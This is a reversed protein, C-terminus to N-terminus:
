QLLPVFGAKHFIQQGEKSLLLNVYALAAVEDITGDARFVVFLRRTLPYSDDRIATANVELGDESLPQVYEQSNERAVALPRITQQGLVPANGLFSIGGPTSAVQRITDTYDRTFKIRSSIQEMENGMVQRLLMSDKPNRAFPVIPVDPGGLEKWNTLKGKYIDKLQNLSVGPISIDRHTFFVIAYYGVPVQKLEFGRQRAKRYDDDTLFGARHVISLQGDFLMTVGKKGGPKGDRPETYRLNFNPHAKAIAENLGNATLSAFVVAGGYNFMGQPVNPVERMTNYIKIGEPNGLASQSSNDVSSFNLQSIDSEPEFMYYILWSFFVFGLAFSLWIMLMFVRDEWGQLKPQTARKGDKGVTIDLPQACKLCNVSTAPNKDYGCHSCIIITRNNRTQNNEM